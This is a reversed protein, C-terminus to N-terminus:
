LDVLRYEDYGVVETGLELRGGYPMFRENLYKIVKSEKLPTSLFSVMLAAVGDEVIIADKSYVGPGSWSSCIRENDEPLGGLVWITFISRSM